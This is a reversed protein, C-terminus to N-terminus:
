NIPYLPSLLNTNKHSLFFFFFQKYIQLYFTSKKLHTKIKPLLLILNNHYLISLLKSNQIFFYFLKIKYHNKKRFLLLLNFTISIIYFTFFNFHNSSQLQCKEPFIFTSLPSITQWVLRAGFPRSCQEVLTKYIM